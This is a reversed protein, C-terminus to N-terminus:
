WLKSPMFELYLIEILTKNLVINPYLHIHPDDFILRQVLEFNEPTHATIPRGSRPDDEVSVRGERFLM